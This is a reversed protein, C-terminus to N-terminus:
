NPSHNLINGTKKWNKKENAESDDNSNNDNSNDNNKYSNNDNRLKTFQDVFYERFEKLTQFTHCQNFNDPNQSVQKSSEQFLGIPAHTEWSEECLSRHTKNEWKQAGRKVYLNWILGFWWGHFICRLSVVRRLVVWM